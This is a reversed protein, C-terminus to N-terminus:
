KLNSIEGESNVKILTISNSAGSNSVDDGFAITGCILYGGDQTQILRSASDNGKGGFTKRWEEVGTSNVKFLMVDDLKEADDTYTTSNTTALVAYGGDSTAIVSVGADKADGPYIQLFSGANPIWTNGDIKLTYFDSNLTSAGAAGTLVYHNDSTRCVQSTTLLSAAASFNDDWDAKTPASSQGLAIGNMRCRVLRPTNQGSLFTSTYVMYEDTFTSYAKIAGNVYDPISQAGYRFPKMDFGGVQILDGNQDIILAYLDLDVPNGPGTSDVMGAIFCTGDQNVVAAKGFTGVETYPNSYSFKREWILNGQNDVRVAVMVTSDKGVELADLKWNRSTLGYTGVLLFGNDPMIAMAGCEDYNLGGFTKHWEENGQADTKIIIMDYNDVDTTSGNSTGAIVYGGDVTQLVEVGADSKLGGYYKVFAKSQDVEKKKCGVVLVLLLITFSSVASFVIKKM